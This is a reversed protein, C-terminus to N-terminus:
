SFNQIKVLSSSTPSSPPPSLSRTCQFVANQFHGVWYYSKTCLKYMCVYMCFYMIPFAQTFRINIGSQRDPPPSTSSYFFFHQTQLQNSANYMFWTSMLQLLVVVVIFENM